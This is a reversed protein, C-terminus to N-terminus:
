AQAKQARDLLVNIYSAFGHCCSAFPKDHEWLTGTAAAMKSFYCKSERLLQCHLGTISLLELRLYYGIFANSPHIGNHKRLSCPGFDDMLRKWLEPHSTPTACQFFFAYYQCTETVDDQLVILTGDQQRVAHDCFWQGNWSQQRITSRMSQARRRFEDNCYLRALADLAAAYLMNSPYNVDQVFDNAKSWEVFVWSPLRELLGDANLFSDLFRVYELLKEKLRLVLNKEDSRHLYEEVELILWLPWNPIFLGNPHDGPYLMPLVGNPLPAFDDADAFNELFPRELESDGTLLFATRATFFSDCLWAARERSPCDTFGDVANAAFTERGAEFIARCEADDSHFPYDWGLPCKYERLFFTEVTGEGGVIFIEAFKFTYPELSELHYTGKSELRWIVANIAENGFPNIGDRKSCNEAFTLVVIGPRLCNFTLNVFGTNNIRGEYLTSIIDGHRDHILGKLFVYANFDLDDYDYCKFGHSSDPRLFNEEQEKQPPKWAALRLTRGPIYSTDHRYHPLPYDRPLYRRNTQIELPLEKLRKRQPKLSYVEMFMRQLSYRPTKTIREHSLDFAKFDHGTWCLVYGTESVIEAQLFSTQDMYFYSNVNCGSVEIELLHRGQELQLPLEDIRFHNKAARAPGFAIFAGDFKVRYLTSGTIRLTYRHNAEMSLITRFLVFDNMRESRGIPWIARAKEFSATSM